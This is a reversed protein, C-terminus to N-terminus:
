ARSESQWSTRYRPSTRWGCAQAGHLVARSTLACRSRRMRVSGASPTKPTLTLTLTGRPPPAACPRRARHACYFLGKWLKNLELETMDEPQEGLWASIGIIAKDRIDKETHALQRGFHLGDIADASKPAAELEAQVSPLRYPRNVKNMAKIDVRGAPRKVTNTPRHKYKKPMDRKNFDSM